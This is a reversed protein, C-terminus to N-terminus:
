KHRQAEETQLAFFCPDCVTVPKTYGMDEIKQKKTM